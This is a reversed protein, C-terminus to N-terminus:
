YRPAPGALTNGLLRRRFPLTILAGFVFGAVHAEWAISGDSILFQSFFWIGLFVIAPMAVIRFFIWTMVDHRPFLVLYAGMAGAIAGSAGILPVTM